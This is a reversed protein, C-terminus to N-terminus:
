LGQDLLFCMDYYIPQYHWASFPPGILCISFMEGSFLDVSVPVARLPAFRYSVTLQPKCVVTFLSGLKQSSPVVESNCLQHPHAVPPQPGIKQPKLIICLLSKCMKMCLHPLVDILVQKGHQQLWEIPILLLFLFPAM